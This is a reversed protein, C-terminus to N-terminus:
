LWRRVRCRYDLYPTGFRTKLAREERPVYFGNLIWLLALPFLFATLSGLLVALGLSVLIAGLYLPNRSIRYPGDTVLATATGHFELTTNRENLSQVAWINVVTGLAIFVIGLCSYPWLVVRRIPVVFHLVVQLGLVLNLYKPPPLRYKM